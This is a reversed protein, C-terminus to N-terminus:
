FKGEVFTEYVTQAPLTDMQKPEAPMLCRHFGNPYGYPGVREPPLISLLCLTRCGVAFALHMIGTDPTVLCACQELVAATQRLSLRGAFIQASAGPALHDALNREAPGGMLFIPRRKDHERILELFTRYHEMPWDRAPGHSRRTLQVAIARGPPTGHLALLDRADQRELDAITYVLGKSETKAGIREVIKLTQEVGHTRDWVEQPIDAPITVLHPLKTRLPNGLVRRSAAYALPFIDPDNARLVVSLYPSERRLELLSGFWNRKSHSILGDIHPNGELVARRKEHVVGVIRSKPFTERVARIAVTDTLTDGIGATSFIVIPRGDVENPGAFPLPPRFAQVMKSVAFILGIRAACMSSVRVGPSDGICSHVSGLGPFLALGRVRGEATREGM